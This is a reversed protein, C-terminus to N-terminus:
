EMVAIKVTQNNITLLYIGAAIGEVSIKHSDGALFGTLIHRGQLTTLVFPTLENSGREVSMSTRAPNPYVSFRAPKEYTVASTQDILGHINYKSFFRWIEKSANMDQNTVGINFATGPWTHGGNFIKYHEVEAGLTGNAYVQHEVTCGDAPASDPIDEVVPSTDCANFSVWYQLVSPISAFFLTGQYQVTGDATGHIEMVPMPHEPDCTVSQNTNMTGTVSAIAAIRESAECALKYSLFGGNSMGTSYIREPDISYEVSLSDILAITFGIDNVTSGGWGVNWHTSGLQDLTGQPQVLLFGATDAIPRFDGYFM